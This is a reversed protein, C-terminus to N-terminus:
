RVRVLKGHLNNIDRVYRYIARDEYHNMLSISDEAVAQAYIVDSEFDSENRLLDGIPMPRIPSTSSTVLVVAKSIGSKAVLDYVDQRQDVIDTERDAISPFKILSFILSAAFLAKIGLSRGKFVGHVVVLIIFPLAEFLFRPGYQNGGIQYYFFHGAMLSIVLYDEPNMWRLVPSKLKQWLFIVYLIVVGPSCWYIFMGIRRIIHEIGKM